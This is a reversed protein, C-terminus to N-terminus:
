KAMSAKASQPGSKATGFRMIMVRAARDLDELVAFNPALPKNAASILLASLLTTIM